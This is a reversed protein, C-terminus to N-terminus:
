QMLGRNIYYIVLASLAALVISGLTVASWAKRRAPENVGLRGLAAFGAVVGMLSVVGALLVVPCVWSGAAPVATSDLLPFADGSIVGWLLPVTLALGVLSYILARGPRARGSTSESM